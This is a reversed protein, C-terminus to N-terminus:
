EHQRWISEHRRTAIFTMFERLRVNWNAASKSFFRRDPNQPACGPGDRMAFDDMNHDGACGSASRGAVSRGAQALLYSASIVTLVASLTKWPMAIIDATAAAAMAVVRAGTSAAGM